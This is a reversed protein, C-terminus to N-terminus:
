PAPSLRSVIYDALEDQLKAATDADLGLGGGGTLYGWGRILLVANNGLMISGQGDHTVPIKNGTERDGNITAILLDQQEESDFLFNFAIAGNKAKGYIGYDNSFPLPWVDKWTM